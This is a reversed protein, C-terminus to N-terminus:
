RALAGKVQSIADSLMVRHLKAGFPNDKLATLRDSDDLRYHGSWPLVSYHDGDLTLFLVARDGVLLLPDGRAESLVIGHWSADAPEPGGAQMITVTEPTASDRRSLHKLEHQIAFTVISIADVTFEVNTATGVVILDADRATEELTLRPAESLVSAETRRVSHLDPSGALTTELWAARRLLFDKWMADQVALQEKETLGADPDVRDAREGTTAVALLTGPILGLSVALIAVPLSLHRRKM